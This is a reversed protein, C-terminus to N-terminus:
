PTRGEAKAIIESCKDVFTTRVWYPPYKTVYKSWDYFLKLTQLMEPAAAILLADAETIGVHDAYGDESQTIIEIKNAVYIAIPPYGPVSEKGIIRYEWPGPTHKPVENSRCDMM